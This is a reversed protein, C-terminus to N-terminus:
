SCRVSRSNQGLSCQLSADAVVRCRGASCRVTCRMRFFSWRKNWITILQQLRCMNQVLGCHTAYVGIGVLVYLARRGADFGALRPGRGRKIQAVGLQRNVRYRRSLVAFRLELCGVLGQQSDRNGKRV